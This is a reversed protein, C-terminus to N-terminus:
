RGLKSAATMVGTSTTPAPRSETTEVSAGEEIRVIGVRRWLGISRLVRPARIISLHGVRVRQDPLEDLIQLRPSEELAGRDYHGGVMSLSQSIVALREVAIEDVVARNVHRQDELERSARAPQSQVLGHTMDVDHRRQEFQGTLAHGLM